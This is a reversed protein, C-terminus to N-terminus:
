LCTHETTKRCQEAPLCQSLSCPDIDIGRMTRVENDSRAILNAPLLEAAVPVDLHTENRHLGIMEIHGCFIRHFVNVIVGDANNAEEADGVRTTVVIHLTNVSSKGLVVLRCLDGNTNVNVTCRACHDSREDLEIQIPVELERVNPGDASRAMLITQHIRANAPNAPTALFSQRLIQDEPYAIQATLFRGHSDVEAATSRLDDTLVVHEHTVAELTVFLDLHAGHINGMVQNLADLFQTDEDHIFLCGFYRDQAPAEIRLRALLPREVIQIITQTHM